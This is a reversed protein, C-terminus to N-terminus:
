WINLNYLISCLLDRCRLILFFPVQIFPAPPAPIFQVQVAADACAVLTALAPPPADVLRCSECLLFPTGLFLVAFHVVPGLVSFTSALLCGGSFGLPLGLLFLQGTPVSALVRLALACGLIVLIIAVGFLWLTALLAVHLLAAASSM